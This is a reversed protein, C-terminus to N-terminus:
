ARAAEFAAALARREGTLAGTLLGRFLGRLVAHFFELDAHLTRTRAALARDGGQLRGTHRDLRDFVGSGNRVVSTPRRLLTANLRPQRESCFVQRNLEVARGWVCRRRM